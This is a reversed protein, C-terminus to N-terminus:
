NKNSVPAACMIAMKGHADSDCAIAIGLLSADVAGDDVDVRFIELAKQWQSNKQLVSIAIGPGVIM